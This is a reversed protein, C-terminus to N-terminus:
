SRRLARMCPSSGHRREAIDERSKGRLGQLAIGGEGSCVTLGDTGDLLALAAMVAVAARLALATPFFVADITGTAVPVTGLALLLFSLRPELVVQGFLERPRVKEEGESDRLGQTGKEARLWAHSGLGQPLRRCRGELPQGVIRAEDPGIERPEGTDQMGPAPLELVGRMDVGDNRAPAERLVARGPAGGSGVEKDGDFGERGDGTREEFWLPAVGSPQLVDLGLDPGDRPIDMTLGMGVAMGGEGGEGGRDELDSEGVLAEDAERVAGDRERVTFHATCAWTSGVEVDHLKEAPEKLVDQGIAKHFDPVAAKEMRATGDRERSEAQHHHLDVGAIARRWLAGGM